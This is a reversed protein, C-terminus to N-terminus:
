DDDEDDLLDALGALRERWYREYPALWDALERLPEAHLSYVRQRGVRRELVLGADKLLRLHESLSPRRMDFHEALQGVPRPGDDRLLRLVERRAPNAIAAFLDVDPM